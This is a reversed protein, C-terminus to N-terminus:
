TGLPLVYIFRLSEDGNNIFNHHENPAIFVVSGEGIPTEKEGSVVVGKGSYFFVEHEWPHSHSWTQIGPKVEFVLMRNPAGDDANLVERKFVGPPAEIPKVDLYHCVKM